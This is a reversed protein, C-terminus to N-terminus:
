ITGLPTGLQVVTELNNRTNELFVPDLNAADKQLLVVVTSGGYEFKGKEQGRTFTEADGNVIRGVFM